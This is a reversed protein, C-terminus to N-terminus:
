DCDEGAKRGNDAMQIGGPREVGTQVAGAAISRRDAASGTQRKQATKRLPPCQNKNQWKRLCSESCFKRPRGKGSQIVKGGCMPCFQRMVNQLFEKEIEERNLFEEDGSFDENDQFGEDDLLGEEPTKENSM